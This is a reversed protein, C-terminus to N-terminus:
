NAGRRRRRDARSKRVLGRVGAARWAKLWSYMTKVGVQHRCALLDLVAMRQGGCRAWLGRFKSRMLLPELIEYKREAEALFRRVRQGLKSRVARRSSNLRTAQATRDLSTAEVKHALRASTM